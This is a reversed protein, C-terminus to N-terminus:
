DRVYGRKAACIGATVTWITVDANFYIEASHVKATARVLDPVHIHDIGTAQHARQGNQTGGFNQAPQRSARDDRDQGVIWDCHDVNRVKAGFGAM